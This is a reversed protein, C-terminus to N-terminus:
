TTFIPYLPDFIFRLQQSFCIPIHDKLIMLHVFLNCLVLM